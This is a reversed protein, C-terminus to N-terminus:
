AAEKVLDYATFADKIASIYATSSITAGSIASVGDLDEGVGAFQSRFPEEATKAGVGATESHALTKCSTIKGDAGIGCILEMDGGYGKTKIMFVYGVGNSAKYVESITAPLGSVDLKEFSDADPLTEVRAQEARLEAAQTIIPETVQNTFALISAILLCIVTLVVIPAIIDKKM